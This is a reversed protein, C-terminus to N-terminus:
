LRELSGPRRDDNPAAEVAAASVGGEDAMSRAREEDLPTLGSTGVAGEGNSASPREIEM